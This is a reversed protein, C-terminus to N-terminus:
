MNLQKIFNRARSYYGLDQWIKLVEEESSTALDFFLPICHFALFYPTRAFLLRQLM